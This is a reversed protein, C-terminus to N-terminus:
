TWENVSKFLWVFTGWGTTFHGHQTRGCFLICCKEKWVASSGATTNKKGLLLVYMCLFGTALQLVHTHANMIFHWTYTMYHNHSRSHILTNVAHWLSDPESSVFHWRLLSPAQGPSFFPSLFHCLLCWVALSTFWLGLSSLPQTSSMM